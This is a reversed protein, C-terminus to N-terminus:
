GSTRMVGRKNGRCTALGAALVQFGRDAASGDEARDIDGALDVLHAIEPGLNQRRGICGRHLGPLDAGSGSYGPAHAELAHAVRLGEWGVEWM